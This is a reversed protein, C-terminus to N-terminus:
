GARSGAAHLARALGDHLPGNSALIEGRALFDDGGDLDTVRGGAARLIAGGGAVDWAKLKREWYGDYTGDAVLCTDIAAAGCRRIARSQRHVAAFTGFVDDGSTRLDYPFGTALLAEGLADTRSTVCPAEHVTSAAGGLLANTASRRVAHRAGGDAFWGAWELGLAPAVVVGLVPARRVSLGVSVCWVPLGHVYNTTGDIPDVWLVADGRADGGTEEGVVPLEPACAALEGRLIAETERDFRTVLDIAGKKEISVPQRFGSLAHAAATRAAAQVLPLLSALETANM